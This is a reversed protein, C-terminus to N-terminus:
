NVTLILTVNRDFNRDFNCNFNCDFPPAVRGSLQVVLALRHASVKNNLYSAGYKLEGYTKPYIQIQIRWIKEFTSRPVQKKCFYTSLM